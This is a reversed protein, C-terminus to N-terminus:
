QLSRHIAEFKCKIAKLRYLVINVSILSFLRLAAGLYEIGISLDGRGLVAAAFVAVTSVSLLTMPLAIKFLQLKKVLMLLSPKRRKM